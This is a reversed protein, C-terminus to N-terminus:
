QEFRQWERENTGQYAAMRQAERAAEEQFMSAELEGPGGGGMLRTMVNWLRGWRAGPRGPEPGTPAQPAAAPFRRTEQRGTMTTNMTKLNM